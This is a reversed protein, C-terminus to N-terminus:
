DHEVGQTIYGRVVSALTVPDASADLDIVEPVNLSLNVSKTARGKVWSSTQLELNHESARESRRRAAEENDCRLHILILEYYSRAADFFSLNALRDGEAIVTKGAACSSLSKLWSDATKMVAYSLTDTGGFPFSDGGLVSFMGQKDSFCRHRIPDNSEYLFVSTSCIQRVLTTKGAGPQGFIYIMRSM